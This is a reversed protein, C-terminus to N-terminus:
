RPPRLERSSLWRDIRAATDAPRARRLLEEREITPPIGRAEQRLRKAVEDPRERPHPRRQAIGIGTRSADQKSKTRSACPRRNTAETRTKATTTRRKTRTMM